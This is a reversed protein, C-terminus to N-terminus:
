SLPHLDLSEAFPHLTLHFVEVAMDKSRRHITPLSLHGSSEIEANSKVKNLQIEAKGHNDSQQQHRTVTGDPLRSHGIARILDGRNWNFGEM